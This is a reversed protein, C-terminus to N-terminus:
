QRTAGATDGANRPKCKIQAQAQVWVQKRGVLGNKFVRGLLGCSPCCWSSPLQGWGMHLAVLGRLQRLVGLSLSIEGLGVSADLNIQKKSKVETDPRQRM